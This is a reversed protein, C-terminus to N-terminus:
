SVSNRREPPLAREAIMPAMGSGRGRRRRARRGGREGRGTRRRARSAELPLQVVDEVLVRDEGASSVSWMGGVAWVISSSFMRRSSMARSDSGTSATSAFAASRSPSNMTTGGIRPPSQVSTSGSVAGRGRSPRADASPRLSTARARCLRVEGAGLAVVPREVGPQRDVTLAGEALRIGGVGPEGRRAAFAVGGEVARWGSSPM